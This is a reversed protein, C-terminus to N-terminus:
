DAYRKWGFRSVKGCHSCYTRYSVIPDKLDVSRDTQVISHWLHFGFLCRLWHLFTVRDRFRNHKM